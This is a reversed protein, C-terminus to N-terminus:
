LEHDKNEVGLGVVYLTSMWLAEKCDGWLLVQYPRLCLELPLADSM